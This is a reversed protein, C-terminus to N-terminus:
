LLLTQVCSCHKYKMTSPSIGDHQAGGFSASNVNVAPADVRIYQLKINKLRKRFFDVVPLPPPQRFTPFRPSGECWLLGPM